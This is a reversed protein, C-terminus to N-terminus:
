QIKQVFEKIEGDSLKRFIPSIDKAIKGSLEKKVDKLEIEKNLNLMSYIKKSSSPTFPYLMIALIKVIEISAKLTIERNEKNKWPERKSLYSNGILAVDVCKKLAERLRLKLFEEEYEEVKEYVEDMVKKTEEDFECNPIQSNFEKSIFSLTRHIFNGIEDNLETNVIKQMLELSFESDATEPLLSILVYRWYDSPLLELATQINLGRGQSKSFKLGKATLFEFAMIVSALSFGLDSGMLSGPFFITHFVINDKGMFQVIKADDKWWYNLDKTKEPNKENNIWEQTIGIYGIPADFWVYFKKNEYGKIPVDFGWTLDRTIARPELHKLFELSNAVANKSWGKSNKIWEEIRSKIKTLDLFLNKTKKFVVKNGCIKCRPNIIQKPTLLKGCTDCQDGRALGGCYPCIGEVFRDPLFRKDKECYAQEEEKEIIYGNKYLALFIEKTLEENEKSGTRGYFTFTCGFDELLKKVLTHNKDAIEKPTTNNKIADLEMQAGHEDSGCIFIAEEGKMKLFKYFVDAPLISGVLNGLHPIGHIYPLASTVLYKVM